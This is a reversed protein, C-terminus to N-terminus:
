FDFKFGIYAAQNYEVDRTRYDTNLTRYGLTFRGHEIVEADIGVRYELFSDANELTLVEPAYYFSGGIYFPVGIDVPLKYSAEVGLPVSTYNKTHNLKFGMGIELGESVEKMMLFNLEGYDDINNSDSHDEDAHLYKFGIFTTEPEVSDNFQGMDFKASIELDKNNVNIEASHMAFLSISSIAILCLKKLM